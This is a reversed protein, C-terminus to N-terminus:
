IRRTALERSHYIFGGICVCALLSTLIILTTLRICSLRVPDVLSARTSTITRQVSPAYVSPNTGPPVTRTSAADSVTAADPVAAVNTSKECHAFSDKGLLLTCHGCFQIFPM